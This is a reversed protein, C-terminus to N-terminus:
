IRAKERGSALKKAARIHVKSRVSVSTEDCPHSSGAVCVRSEAKSLHVNHPGDAARLGLVCNHPGAASILQGPYNPLCRRRFQDDVIVYQLQGVGRRVLVEEFTTLGDYTTTMRM